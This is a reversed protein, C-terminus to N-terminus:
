APKGCGNDQTSALPKYESGGVSRNRWVVGILGLLGSGLLWAAAPLPIASIETAGAFFGGTIYECSPDCPEGEPPVCWEFGAVRAAFYAAFSDLSSDQVTFGLSDIRNSGTTEIRIDFMGFGNLNRNSSASWGDPLNSIEGQRMALFNFGFQQIGFNSGAVDNLPELTNVLFDVGGTANETLYVSLYQNGGPLVNSQDLYYGTSASQVPDAGLMFVGAAVCGRMVHPTTSTHHLHEM